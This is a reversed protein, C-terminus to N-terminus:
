VKRHEDGPFSDFTITEGHIRKSEEGSVRLTNVCRNVEKSAERITKSSDRALLRAFEELRSALIDATKYLIQSREHISLKRAIRSGKEAASLVREVDIRDAKPITDILSSDFPDYVSIQEDKDIWQSDILMRM